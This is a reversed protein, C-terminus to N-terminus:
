VLVRPVTASNTWKNFNSARWRGYKSLVITRFGLTTIIYLTEVWNSARSRFAYEPCVFLNMQKSLLQKEILFQKKCKTLCLYVYISYIFKRCDIPVVLIFLLSKLIRWTCLRRIRLSKLAYMWHILRPAQISSFLVTLDITNFLECFTDFM